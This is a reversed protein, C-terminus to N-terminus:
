GIVTPNSIQSKLLEDMMWTPSREGRTAKLDKPLGQTPGEVLYLFHKKIYLFFEEHGHEDHLASFLKEKEKKIKKYKGHFILFIMDIVQIKHFILSPKSTIGWRPDINAYGM